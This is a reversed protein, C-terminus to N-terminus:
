FGLVTKLDPVVGLELLRDIMRIKGKEVCLSLCQKDPQVGRELFLDLVEDKEEVCALRLAKMEPPAGFAFLTKVMEVDGRQSARVLPYHSPHSPSAGRALLTNILQLHDSSKFLRRPM